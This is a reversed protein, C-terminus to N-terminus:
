PLWSVAQATPMGALHTHLALTVDAVIRQHARASCILLAVMSDSTCPMQAADLVLNTNAVFAIVCQVALVIEFYTCSVRLQSGSLELLTQSKAEFASECHSAAAGRV